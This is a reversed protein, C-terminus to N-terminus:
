HNVWWESWANGLLAIVLMKLISGISTFLLFSWVPIKLTGAAIGAADFFPNPIFALGTILLSSWSRHQVMWNVVQPYYKVKEAIGQGSFGVLYGSLEGIAAGLGGLVAVIIPNFLAGMTFILMIGPVPIFVTANAILPILFAGLYGYHAFETLRDRFIFALVSILVVALLAAIRTLSQRKETTM